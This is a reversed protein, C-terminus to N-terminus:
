RSVGVAQWGSTTGTGPERLADLEQQPELTGDPRQVRVLVTERMTPPGNHFALLRVTVVYDVRRRADTQDELEVRLTRYIGTQICPFRAALRHHPVGVRRVIEQDLWCRAALGADGHVSPRNVRLARLCAAQRM